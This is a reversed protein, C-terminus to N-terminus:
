LARERVKQSVTQRDWPRALTLQNVDRERRTAM